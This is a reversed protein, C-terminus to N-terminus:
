ILEIKLGSEELRRMRKDSLELIYVRLRMMSDHVSKITNISFYWVTKTNKIVM